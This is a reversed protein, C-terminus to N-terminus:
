MNEYYDKVAENIEDYLDKNDEKSGTDMWVTNYYNGDSGKEQPMNCFFGNKGSMLKIGTIVVRDVRVTAFGLLNSNQGKYARFATVEIADRGKIRAM